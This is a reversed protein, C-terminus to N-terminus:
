ASFFGTTLLREPRLFIVFHLRGAERKARAEGAQGAIYKGILKCAWIGDTDPQVRAYGRAMIQRLPRYGAETQDGEVAICLGARPVPRCRFLNLLM